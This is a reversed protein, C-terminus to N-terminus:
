QFICKDNLFRYQLINLLSRLLFFDDLLRNFIDSEINKNFLVFNLFSNNKEQFFPEQQLFLFFMDRFINEIVEKLM